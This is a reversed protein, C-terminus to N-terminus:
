EGGPLRKTFMTREGFRHAGDSAPGPPRFPFCPDSGARNRPANGIFAGQKEAAQVARLRGNGTREISKSRGTPTRSESPPHPRWLPMSLATGFIRCPVVFIRDLVKQSFLSLGAGGAAHEHAATHAISQGTSPLQPDRERPWKWKVVPWFLQRQDTTLRCHFSVGQRCRFSVGSSVAHVASSSSAIRAPRAALRVALSMARAM